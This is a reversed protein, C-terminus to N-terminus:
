DLSADDDDDCKELLTYETESVTHPISYSSRYTHHHEERV